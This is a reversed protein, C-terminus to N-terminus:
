FKRNSYLDKRMAIVLRKQIQISDELKANYFEKSISVVEESGILEAQEQSSVYAQKFEDGYNKVSDRYSRILNIYVNMKHDFLHKSKESKLKFWTGIFGGIAAAIASLIPALWIEM